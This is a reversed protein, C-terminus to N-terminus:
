AAKELEEKAIKAEEKFSRSLDNYEEIGTDPNGALGAYHRAMMQYIKSRDGLCLREAMELM